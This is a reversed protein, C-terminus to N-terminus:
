GKKKTRTLRKATLSSSAMSVCVNVKCVMRRSGTKEGAENKKKNNM